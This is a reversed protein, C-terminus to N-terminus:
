AVFGAPLPAPVMPPAVMPEPDTAMANAAFIEEASMEEHCALPPPEYLLGPPAQPPPPAEPAPAEAPEDPTTADAVQESSQSSAGEGHSAATSDWDDLSLSLACSRLV